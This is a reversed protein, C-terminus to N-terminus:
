SNKLQYIEFCEQPNITSIGPIEVKGLLQFNTQKQLFERYERKPYYLILSIKRPYKDASQVIRIMLREFIERSFPNFLYFINGTPPIDYLEAQKSVLSVKSSEDPHKKFYQRKNQQAIRQLQENIEIGTVQCKFYYHAYFLLRGKGSGIDILHDTTNLPFTAFLKQLHFYPTGEYPFYQKSKNQYRGRNSTDIGFLLDYNTPMSHRSGKM